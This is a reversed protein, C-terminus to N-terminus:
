NIWVNVDSAIQAFRVPVQVCNVMWTKRASALWLGVPAARDDLVTSQLAHLPAVAPALCSIVRSVVGTRLASTSYKMSMPQLPVLTELQILM